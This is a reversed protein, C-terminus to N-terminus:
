TMAPIHMKRMPFKVVTTLAITGQRKEGGGLALPLFAHCQVEDEGM